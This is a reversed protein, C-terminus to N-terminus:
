CHALLLLLCVCARFLVDGGFEGSRLLNVCDVDGYGAARLLQELLCGCTPGVVRATDKDVDGLWQEQLGSRCVVCVLFPLGLVLLAHWASRFMAAGAKELQTVMEERLSM